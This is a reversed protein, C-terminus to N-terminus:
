IFLFVALTFLSLLIRYNWLYRIKLLGTVVRGKHYVFMVESAM